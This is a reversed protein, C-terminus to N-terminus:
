VRSRPALQLVGAKWTFLATFIKIFFCKEACLVEPSNEYRGEPGETQSAGSAYSAFLSHLRQPDVANFFCVAACGSDAPVIPQAFSLEREM